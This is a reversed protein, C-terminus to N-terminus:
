SHLLIIVFLIYTFKSYCKSTCLPNSLITIVVNGSSIHGVEISSGDPSKFKESGSLITTSRFVINSYHISKKTHKIDSESSEIDSADCGPHGSIFSSGGGGGAGMDKSSGGGYYGGGGCNYNTTDRSSIISPRTAYGFRGPFTGDGGGTISAGKGPNTSIFYVCNGTKGDGGNLGGGVGGNGCESGGAGGAVMIRSKLSTFNKWHGKELRIDTAGSGSHGYYLNGGGGNFVEDNSIYGNITLFEGTSGLYLYIHLPSKVELIGSTYGGGASNSNQTNGAGYCEIQYIGHPLIVEYPSCDFSSNCPYSFLFTRSDIKEVNEFGINKDVISYRIHEM